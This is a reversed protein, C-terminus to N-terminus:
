NFTKPLPSSFFVDNERRRRRGEKREWEKERERCGFVAYKHRRSVATSSFFFSFKELSGSFALRSIWACMHLRAIVIQVFSVITQKSWSTCHSRYSHLLYIIINEIHPVVISRVHALFIPRDWGELILQLRSDIFLLLTDEVSSPCTNSQSFCCCELMFIRNFYENPPTNKLEVLPQLHAWLTLTLKMLVWARRDTLLM